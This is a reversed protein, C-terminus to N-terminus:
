QDFRVFHIYIRHKPFHLSINYKCNDTVRGNGFTKFVKYDDGEDVLGLECFINKLHVDPKGYDVYGIEKLFDCALPFGYGFIEADLLM